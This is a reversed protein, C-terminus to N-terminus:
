RRKLLLLAGGFLLLFGSTPEPVSITPTWIQATSPIAMDSPIVYGGSVLQGYTWTDSLGVTTENAGDWTLLEVFYSYNKWDAETGFETLQPGLATTLSLDDLGYAEGGTGDFPIAVKEGDKTAYVVAYNFAITNKADIMWYLMEASATRVVSLAALAFLVKLTKM